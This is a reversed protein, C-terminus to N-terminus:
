KWPRVTLKLSHIKEPDTSDSDKSPKDTVIFSKKDSLPHFNGKSSRALIDWSTLLLNTLANYGRYGRYVGNILLNYAM